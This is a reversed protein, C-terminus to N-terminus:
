RAISIYESESSPEPVTEGDEIMGEIHLDIATKISSEVDAKTDGFAVCGPLDPAYASWGDPNKEFVVLYNKM